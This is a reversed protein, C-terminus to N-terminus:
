FLITKKIEKLCKNNVFQKKFFNIQKMQEEMQEEFDFTWQPFLVKTRKLKETKRM